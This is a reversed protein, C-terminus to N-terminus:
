KFVLVIRIFSEVVGVNKGHDLLTSFASASVLVLVLVIKNRLGLSFAWHAKSVAIRM